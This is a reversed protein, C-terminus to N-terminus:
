LCFEQALYLEDAVGSNVHWDLPSWIPHYIYGRPHENYVNEVGAGKNAVTYYQIKGEDFLKGAPSSMENRRMGIIKYFKIWESAPRNRYKGYFTYEKPKGGEMEVAVNQGGFVLTGFNMGTFQPTDWDGGTKSWYAQKVPSAPPPQILLNMKQAVTYNYQAYDNPQISYLYDKETVGLRQFYSIAGFEGRAPNDKYRHFLPVEQFSGVTGGTTMGDYYYLQPDGWKRVTVTKAFNALPPFTISAAINM